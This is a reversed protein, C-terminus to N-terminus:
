SSVYEFVFVVNSNYVCMPFKKVVLIKKKTVLTNFLQSKHNKHVVSKKAQSWENKEFWQYLWCTFSFCHKWTIMSSWWINIPVHANPYGSDLSLFKFDSLTINQIPFKKACVDSMSVTMRLTADNWLGCMEIPSKNLSLIFNITIM